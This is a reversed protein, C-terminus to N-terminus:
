EGVSVEAGQIGMGTNNLKLTRLTFCVSSSLLKFIATIGAPGFANDSLDLEVLQARAGMMADGLVTQSLFLLLVSLPHTIPYSERERVLAPPIETKSRGVFIDSWLARRLSPRTSLAGAVAQAAEVGLSNCSLRLSTLRENDRIAEM